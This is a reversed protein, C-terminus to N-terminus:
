QIRGSRQIEDFVNGDSNYARVKASNGEITVMFFHHTPSAKELYWTNAPDYVTRTAVGWAGDGLYTVGTEDIKGNRIPPTRKFTHDHHEFAIPLNHKEFLPVWHERVAATPHGGFSRHSPFAPVHYVPILHPVHSRNDLTTSLWNTQRGPISTTHDTDLIVISLYNGFDLARFPRGDKSPFFKYFFPAEAPTGGYGKQVEHNGIASVVPILRNNVTSHTYWDKWFEIVLDAKEPRGDEYVIDGGWVVFDPALTGALRNMKRTTSSVSLDGGVIFNIPRTLNEPLTKFTFTNQSKEFRFEYETDPQLGSVKLNYYYYDTYDISSSNTKYPNWDSSGKKRLLVKRVADDKEFWCININNMPTSDWTLYIAEIKERETLEEGCSFLFISSCFLLILYKKM